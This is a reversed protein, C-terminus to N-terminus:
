RRLGLQGQDRGHRYPRWRKPIGYKENIAKVKAEIEAKEETTCVMVDDDAIKWWRLHLEGPEYFPNTSNKAYVELEDDEFEGRKLVEENQYAIRWAWKDFAPQFEIKLVDEKEM